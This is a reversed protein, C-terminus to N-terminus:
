GKIKMLMITMMLVPILGLGKVFSAWLCTILLLAVIGKQIYAFVKEGTKPFALNLVTRLARGGDLPYVPLLNCCSHFLACLAIRPFHRCALLLLLGGLPGALACVAEQGPSIPSTEMELGTACVRLRYVQAGCLRLAAYHCLEHIVISIAAAFLWALPLALILLVGLICIGWSVGSPLGSPSLIKSFKKVFHM